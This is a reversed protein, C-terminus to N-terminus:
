PAVHSHRVARTHTTSGEEVWGWSGTGKGATRSGGSRARIGSPHWPGVPPTTGLRQASAGQIRALEGPASPWSGRPRWTGPASRGPRGSGPSARPGGAREPSGCGIGLSVRGAPAADARCLVTEASRVRAGPAPRGGEQWRSAPLPSVQSAALSAGARPGRRRPSRELSSEALGVGGPPGRAPVRSPRRLQLGGCVVWNKLLFFSKFLGKEM